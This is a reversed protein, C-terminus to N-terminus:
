ISMWRHAYSLIKGYVDTAVAQGVIQAAEPNIMAVFAARGARVYVDLSKRSKWRGRKMIDELPLGNLYHTTAGGHRMSHSTYHISDLGVVASAKRLLTAFRAPTTGFLRKKNTHRIKDRARTRQRVVTPGLEIRKTRVLAVYWRLLQAVASSKVPVGQNVGTKAQGIHVLTTHQQIGLQQMQEPMVVDDLTINCMESVRLYCDHAVLIGVAAGLHGLKVLAGALACAHTWSMPEASKSPQAKEWGKLARACLPMHGKLGPNFHLLASFATACNSRSGAQKYQATFWDYMLTDANRSTLRHGHEAVWSKFQELARKYAQLTRPNIALNILTMDRHKSSASAM